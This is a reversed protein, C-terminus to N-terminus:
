HDFMVINNVIQMCKELDYMVNVSNSLKTLLGEISFCKTIRFLIYFNSCCLLGESCINGFKSGHEKEHEFIPEKQGELSFCTHM